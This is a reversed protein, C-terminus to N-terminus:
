SRPRVIEFREIAVAVGIGQGDGETKKETRVVKGRILVFIRTGQALQGPFTLTVDLQSGPVFEQETTFYIGGVSIDKTTGRFPESREEGAAWFEIPLSLRYRRATRREKNRRHPRTSAM